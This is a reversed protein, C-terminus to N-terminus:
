SYISFNCFSVFSLHLNKNLIPFNAKTQIKYKYSIIREVYIDAFM